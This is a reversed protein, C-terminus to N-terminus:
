ITDICINLCIPFNWFHFTIKINPKMIINLNRALEVIMTKNFLNIIITLRLYALNWEIFLIQIIQAWFRLLSQFYFASLMTFNNVFFSSEGETVSMQTTRSYWISLIERGRNYVLFLSLKCQFFWEWWANPDFCDVLSAINLLSISFIKIV